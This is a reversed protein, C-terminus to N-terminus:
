FPHIMKGKNWRIKHNYFFSGGDKTVRYLENLVNIQNLQYDEESMTDSFSDYVVSSVMWGKNKEQKNYPPSTVGCDFVSSPIQQLVKLSDGHIIKNAYTDM